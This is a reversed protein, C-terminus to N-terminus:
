RANEKSGVALYEGLRDLVVFLGQVLPLLGQLSVEGFGLALAAPRRGSFVAVASDSDRFSLRAEPRAMGEDAVGIHRGRKSLTMAFSGPAEVLATGDPVHAMRAELAPDSNAVEALGRLAAAALLRAKLSPDAKPDALIGPAKKAAARFFALAATAGPGRPLPLAFGGWGALLSACTRASPFRLTLSPWGSPRSGGAFARLGREPDSLLFASPLGPASLSLLFRKKSALERLGPDTEGAIAILHVTVALRLRALTATEAASLGGINAKM